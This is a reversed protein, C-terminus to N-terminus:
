IQFDSWVELGVLTQSGIWKSDQSDSWLRAAWASGEEWKLTELFVCPEARLGGLSFIIVTKKKAMYYCHM